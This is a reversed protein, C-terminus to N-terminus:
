IDKLRYTDSGHAKLLPNVKDLAAQKLRAVKNLDATSCKSGCERNQRLAETIAPIFSAVAAKLPKDTADAYLRKLDRLLKARSATATKIDGQVAAARGKESLRMLGDLTKVQAALNPAAKKRKATAVPEPSAQEVVAKAPPAEAAPTSPESGGTLVLVVVAVVTALLVTGAVIAATRKDIRSRNAPV